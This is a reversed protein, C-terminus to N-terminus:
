TGVFGFGSQIYFIEEGDPMINIGDKLEEPNYRKMMEQLDGYNFYVSEIERSLHGSLLHHYIARREIRSDPSFSRGPQRAPRRKRGRGQTHRPHRCLRIQTHTRRHNQGRRIGEPRALVILEAGDALAMRTRYISKNGLWTSKFESSRALRRM